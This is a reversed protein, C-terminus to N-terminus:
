VDYALLRVPFIADAASRPQLRDSVLFLRFATPRVSERCFTAAGQSLPSRVSRLFRPPAENHISAKQDLHSPHELEFDAPAPHLGAHDLRQDSTDVGGGGHKQRLRTSSTTRVSSAFWSMGTVVVRGSWPSTKNWSIPGHNRDFSM